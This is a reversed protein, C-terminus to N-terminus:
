PMGGLEKALVHATSSPNSRHARYHFDFLTFPMDSLFIAGIDRFRVDAVATGLRQNISVVISSVVFTDVRGLAWLFDSPRLFVQVFFLFTM